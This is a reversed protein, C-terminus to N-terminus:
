HSGEDDKMLSDISVWDGADADDPLKKVAKEVDDASIMGRNQNREVVRTDLKKAEVADHLLTM